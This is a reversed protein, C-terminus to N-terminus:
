VVVVCAGGAVVGACAEDACDGRGLSDGVMGVLVSGEAGRPGSWGGAVRGLEDRSGDSYM